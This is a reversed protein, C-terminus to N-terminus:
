GGRQRHWRILALLHSLWGARKRSARAMLAGALLAGVVVIPRVFSGEAWGGRYRNLRNRLGATELRLAGRHLDAELVLSHRAEELETLRGKQPM